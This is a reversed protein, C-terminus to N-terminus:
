RLAVAQPDAAAPEAALVMHSQIELARQLTQNRGRWAERSTVPAAVAPAASQLAPNSGHAASM